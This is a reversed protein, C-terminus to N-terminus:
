TRPSMAVAIALPLLVLVPIFVSIVPSVGAIPATAGVTGGILAVMAVPTGRLALQLMNGPVRVIFFPMVLVLSILNTLAVSIRGFRTRQLRDKVVGENAGTQELLQGLQAWSLNQSYSAYQRVVLAIPDLDTQIRVQQDAQLTGRGGLPEITAQLCVWADGDWKALEGHTRSTALGKEDREIFEFDSLTMATPDFERAYLLRDQADKIMSVSLLEAGRKGADDHERALLPAIRPLVLEQNIAGVLVLGTAVVIIPGAVRRLSLGSALVAVLERHRVMQTCTFGMAGALVLGLLTNFLQLLKPWWYDAILLVTVVFQRVVGMEGDPSDQRSAIRWFWDLNVAVDITVVFAFLIAYLSLINVAYQRAIYRDLIKM